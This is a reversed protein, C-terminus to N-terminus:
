NFNFSKSKFTQVVFKPYSIKSPIRSTESNKVMEPDRYAKDDYEIRSCGFKSRYVNIDLIWM